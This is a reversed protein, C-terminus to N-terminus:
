ETALNSTMSRPPFNPNPSVFLRGVQIDTGPAPNIWCSLVRWTMNPKTEAKAWALADELKDFVPGIAPRDSAGPNDTDFLTVLFMSRNRQANRTLSEVEEQIAKGIVSGELMSMAEQFTPDPRQGVADRLQESPISASRKRENRTGAASAASALRSCSTRSVPLVPLLPARRDSSM